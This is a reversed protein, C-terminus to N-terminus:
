CISDQRHRRPKERCAASPVDRFAPIVLSAEPAPQHSSFHSAYLVRLLAAFESASVGKLKIPCEPSSGEEPTDGEAKRTKFMESLVQSKALQYKHVNFLTRGAQVAILTNDFFFEPHREPPGSCENESEEDPKDVDNWNIEDPKGIEDPNDNHKVDPAGDVFLSMTPQSMLLRSKKKATKKKPTSLANPLM